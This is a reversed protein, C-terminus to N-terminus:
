QDISQTPEDGNDFQRLSHPALNFLKDLNVVNIFIDMFVDVSYFGNGVNCSEVLPTIVKDIFEAGNNISVIQGFNAKIILDFNLAMKPVNGLGIMFIWPSLAIPCESIAQSSKADKNVYNILTLVEDMTSAKSQPMKRLVNDIMQAMYSNPPRNNQKPFLYLENLYRDSAFDIIASCLTNILILELSLFSHEAISKVSLYLNLFICLYTIFNTSPYFEINEPAFSTYYDIVNNIGDLLLGVNDSALVRVHVNSNVIGKIAEGKQAELITGLVTFLQYSRELIANNSADKDNKIATLFTDKVSSYFSTIAEDFAVPGTTLGPLSVADSLLAGAHRIFEKADDLEIISKSYIPSDVVHCGPLYQRKRVCNNFLVYKIEGFADHVFNDNITYQEGNFLLTNGNIEFHVSM